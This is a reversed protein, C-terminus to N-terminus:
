RPSSGQAARNARELQSEYLRIWIEASERLADKEQLVRELEMKLRLNEDALLDRERRLRDGETFALELAQELRATMSPPVRTDIRSQSQQATIM